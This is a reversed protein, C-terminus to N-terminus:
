AGAALPRSELYMSDPTRRGLAADPRRTNFIEPRGHSRLADELAEVCFGATLSNSLRWALIKRSFWDIVVVLYAFGRAM